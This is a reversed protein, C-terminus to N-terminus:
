YGWPIAGRVAVTNWAAERDPRLQELGERNPRIRERTPSRATLASAGHGAQKSGSDSAAAMSYGNTIVVLDPHFLMLSNRHSFGECPLSIPLTSPAVCRSLPQRLPGPTMTVQHM